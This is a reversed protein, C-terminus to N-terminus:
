LSIAGRRTAAAIAAMQRETDEKKKQTEMAVVLSQTYSAMVFSATLITYPNSSLSGVMGLLTTGLNITSTLISQGVVSLGMASLDVYKMIQSMGMHILSSVRQFSIKGKDEMIVFDNGVRKVKNGTDVTKGELKDLQQYATSDDIGVQITEGGSFFGAKPM